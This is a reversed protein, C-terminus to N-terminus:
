RRTPQVDNILALLASIEVPKVLHHDIGAEKAHTVDSPTGHGTIAMLTANATAPDARLHRAVEYGTIDPLGIDLLVIDPRKEAATKLASQGDRALFVQHGDLELVCKLTEAVDSNDEVLLIRRAVGPKDAISGGRPPEVKEEGSNSLPLRVIFEAGKGPGESRAIVSGGHLEVLRQVLSLGLGLGGIRNQSSPDARMFFNFVQPLTEAAIGIGNDAVSLFADGGDRRLAVWIRGKEQTYKNANDLLNTLIQVLRVEDGDVFLPQSDQEIALEQGRQDISSKVTSLAAKLVEGLDVREKTLNMGEGSRIKAIDLLDDVLRALHTLQRECIEELRRFEPDQPLRREIIALANRLPTLPNRLEHGLMALFEDKRRDAERLMEAERRSNEALRKETIDTNMCVWGRLAGTESSLPAARIQTWRWDGSKQRMRFEAELPQHTKMRRRWESLFATRDDPHVADLWGEGRREMASQGTFARWSPSDEVVKGEADATWVTQAYAAVLVRFIEESNRADFEVKKLQTIDVLTIVVGQAEDSSSRYPNVRSLYWEGGRSQIEREVPTLTELVRMADQDLVDYGFGHRLEAFPRGQDSTRINLLGQARPTARMIRLDKDLFLTAIETAAMLNQLDSTLQSLAEVKDRNEQNVTQLEENMSQLEEKSTELEEMTSRLEENVSQLEENTARMEEQSTEYQEIVTHLRDKTEELEARAEAADQSLPVAPVGESAESELFIVMNLNGLDAGTSPQVYLVVQKPRGEIQIPIPGTRRSEGHEVAAHLAARLEVCLEERALRFVSGSLEGGPIRLYRGARESAHVLRFDQDVLISPPAFREVIKQHLVGYSGAGEVRSNAAEVSGYRRLTQPFVPLKPEPAPVNRRRYLCHQKSELHFLGGRDMSESPGLLLLGEPRLAYHFLDIVDHQLNRQLYILLNRCVILHLRSFPPDRLLNHVAFVVVERVEKRIRYGSDEKVFFRRLREPPIEVDISEPYYGDRALRLSPEHLDTAFIEIRPPDTVLGAHELLLMALSYAEEGTACGVSWVRITDASTKGKFLEPVIEKQLYVFVDADRFFQTVTILFEEALLSAEYPDSRLFQLYDELLEKQNLQMRRRIRRAVTSHKYQSFDINTRARVETLIEQLFQRDSHKEIADPSDPLEIRPRTTALRMIHAPMEEVPLVLDVLGTAIASQPMSGFQSESPEQAITFGGFEKIIRVGYSGDAGTGSLIVGVCRDSHVKAMTEFFHDIASREQKRRDIKSPRLRGDVFSLDKGPPIVYIHNPEVVLEEAVQTIPMPSFPTLVEAMLSPQDPSLHVVIVFVIGSDGPLAPLLTKLADLGGASAGIGVFLLPETVIDSM